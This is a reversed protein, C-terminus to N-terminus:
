FMKRDMKTGKKRLVDMTLYWAMAEFKKEEKKKATNWMSGSNKGFPETYTTLFTNTHKHVRHM